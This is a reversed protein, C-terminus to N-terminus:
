VSAVTRNAIDNAHARGGNADGTATRDALPLAHVLTAVMSSSDEHQMRRQQMPERGQVVAITPETVSSTAPWGAIKFKSLNKRHGAPGQLHQQKWSACIGSSWGGGELWM